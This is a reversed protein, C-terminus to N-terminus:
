RGKAGHEGRNNGHQKLLAHRAIPVGFPKIAYKEPPDYAAGRGPWGTSAVTIARLLKEEWIIVETPSYVREARNLVRQLHVRNGLPANLHEGTM